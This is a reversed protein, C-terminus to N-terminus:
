RTSNKESRVREEDQAALSAGVVKELSEQDKVRLLHPYAPDASVRCGGLGQGLACFAVMREIAHHLGGELQGKELPFDDTRLNLDLLPKIAEPKGWFMSGGPCDPCFDPDIKIELRQALHSSVKFNAGWRQSPTTDNLPVPFVLGLRKDALLRLNSRVIEPSGVLTHLLHRRWEDGWSGTHPSKKSHLHLFYDCTPYVDRFTIYKPAIDRGRNPALRVEANEIQHHNIQRILESKKVETDTSVYLQYAMPIQRIHTLMEPMLDPYYCHVVVAIRPEPSAVEVAFPIQVAPLRHLQLYIIRQIYLRSMQWLTLPNDRPNMWRRMISQFVRALERLKM